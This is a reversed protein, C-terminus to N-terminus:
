QTHAYHESEHTAAWQYKPFYQLAWILSLSYSGTWSILEAKGRSFTHWHEEFILTESNKGKNQVPSLFVLNCFMLICCLTYSNSLRSSFQSPSPPLLCQPYQCHDEIQKQQGVADPALETRSSFSHQNTPKNKKRGVGLCYLRLLILSLFLILPEHEWYPCDSSEHSLLNIFFRVIQLLSHSIMEVM